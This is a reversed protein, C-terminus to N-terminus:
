ISPICCKLGCHIRISRRIFLTYIFVEYALFVPVFLFLQSLLDPPSVMAAWILVMLIVWPRISWLFTISVWGWNHLLFLLLPIQSTLFVIRFVYIILNLYPWLCPLYDLHAVDNPDESSFTFGLFFSWAQPVLVAGAFYFAGLIFLSSMFLIKQFSRAEKMYLGPRLFFWAQIWFLPMGAVLGSLVAVHFQGLLAETIDLSILSTLNCHIRLPELIISFIVDVQRYSIFIGFLLGLSM